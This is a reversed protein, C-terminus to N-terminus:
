SSGDFAASWDDERVANVTACMIGMSTKGVDGATAFSKTLCGGGPMGNVDAPGESRM